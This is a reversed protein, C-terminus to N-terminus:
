KIDTDKDINDTITITVSASKIGADKVINDAITVTISGSGMWLAVFWPFFTFFGILTLLIILGFRPHRIKLDKRKKNEKILAAIEPIEDSLNAAIIIPYFPILVLILGGVFTIFGTVNTGADIPNIYGYYVMLVGVGITLPLMILINVFFGTRQIMYTM